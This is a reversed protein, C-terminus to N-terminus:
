QKRFVVMAWGVAGGAFLISVVFLALVLPSPARRAPGPRERAAAAQSSRTSSSRSDGPHSDRVAAQGPGALEPSSPTRRPVTGPVMVGPESPRAGPAQMAAAGAPGVPASGAQAGPARPAAIPSVPAPTTAMLLTGTGPKPSAPKTSSAADGAPPVGGAGFRATTIEPLEHFRNSIPEEIAGTVSAKLMAHFRAMSLLRDAPNKRLAHELIHAIRSKRVAPPLVLEAPSLHATWAEVNTGFLRKGTICEILVLALSYIDAQPGITDGRVQEPAMYAPTGIMEGAATLAKSEANSLVKAIGFDLVKVFDGPVGDLLMFNSPKLDRHVIGVLHAESLSESIQVGLRIARAESMPGEAKLLAQLTRGKLLEFSIYAPAGETSDFDLVRISHAGQLEKAVEAERRFRERDVESDAVKRLIKLAVETGTTLWFARYIDGYGGGGIREVIRYRDELGTPLPAEVNSGM